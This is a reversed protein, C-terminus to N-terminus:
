TCPCLVYVEGAGHYPRIRLVYGQATFFGAIADIGGGLFCMGLTLLPRRSERLIRWVLYVYAAALVIPVCYLGTIM